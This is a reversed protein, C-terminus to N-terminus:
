FICDKILNVYYLKLRGWGGMDAEVALRKARSRMVTRRRVSVLLNVTSFIYTLWSIRLICKEGGVERLEFYM